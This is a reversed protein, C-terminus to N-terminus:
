TILINRITWLYMYGVAHSVMKICIKKQPEYIRGNREISDGSQVAKEIRQFWKEPESIQGGLIEAAPKNYYELEEDQNVVMVAESLEDVVYDKALQLTDLLKYKFIAIYMFFTGITYGLVTCDYERTLGTLYIIYSACVSIVALTVSIIRRKSIANKERGIARFLQFLGIIIYLTMVLTYANHWVGASIDISKWLGEEVYEMSSYYLGHWRCTLVLFFTATHFFVMGTMILPKIRIKCMSMCFIFLSFPIWVRGLYSMQLGTLYQEESVSVMMLLYGTNNVLTAVCNLFLYKYLGAKMKAFVYGSEIFLLVVSIAQITLLTLFM